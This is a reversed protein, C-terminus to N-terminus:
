KLTELYATLDHMEQDTLKSLLDLHAQLPDTIKVKPVDGNRAFSHRVGAADVVTIAYDSVYLVTGSVVEGSALTITATRPADGPSPGNSAPYGGIGRPLVLHGQLERPAYKSGIHALDGTVSHCANCGGGGNFFAAGAQANGVLIATGTELRAPPAGAQAAAAAALAVLLCGWAWARRTARIM